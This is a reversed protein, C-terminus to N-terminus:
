QPTSEAEEIAKIRSYIQRSDPRYVGQEAWCEQVLEFIDGATCQPRIRERNLIQNMVKEKYLINKAQLDHRYEAERPSQSLLEDVVYDDVSSAIAKPENWLQHCQSLVLWSILSFSYVDACAYRDVIDSNSVGGEGIDFMKLSLIEPAMYLWTGDPCKQEFCKERVNELKELIKRNQCRSEDHHSSELFTHPEFPREHFRKGSKDNNLDFCDCQHPLERILPIASNFDCIVSEGQTSVLVNSPKLDRHVMRPKPHEIGESSRHLEYLGCSLSRLLNFVEVKTIPSKRKLYSGIDGYPYVPMVIISSPRGNPDLHKAIYATMRLLYDSRAGILEFMIKEHEAKEQKEICKVAVCQEEYMAKYVYGYRGEGLVVPKRQADTCYMIDGCLKRPTIKIVNFEKDSHQSPVLPLGDEDALDEPSHRDLPPRPHQRHNKFKFCLDIKMQALIFNKYLYWVLGSVALVVVIGTFIMWYAGKAGCNKFIMSNFTFNIAGANLFLPDCWKPPKEHSFDYGDNGKVICCFLPIEGFQARNNHCETSQPDAAHLSKQVTETVFRITRNHKFEFAKCIITKDWKATKNTYVSGDLWTCETQDYSGEPCVVENIITDTAGSIVNPLFLLTSYNIM